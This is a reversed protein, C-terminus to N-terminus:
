CSSVLWHFCLDVHQALIRLNFLMLFYSSISIISHGLNPLVGGSLVCCFKFQGSPQSKRRQWYSSRLQLNVQLSFFSELLFNGGIGRTRSSSWSSGSNVLSQAVQSPLTLSSDTSLETKHILTQDSLHAAQQRLVWRVCTVPNRILMTICLRWLM